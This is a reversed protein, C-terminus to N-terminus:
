KRQGKRINVLQDPPIMGRRILLREAHRYLKFIKRNVFREFPTKGWRAAKRLEEEEAYRRKEEETRPDDVEAHAGLYRCVPSFDFVYSLLGNEYTRYDLSVVTVRDTVVQVSMEKRADDQRFCLLDIEVGPFREALIRQAEVADEDSPGTMIPTEAYVALVRKSGAVAHLFRDVRRAYKEAVAPFAEDVTRELPFDHAYVLGTRRNRMVWNYHAARRIYVLELDGREFWGAFNAAVLRARTLLDSSGAWDLPWSTFQLNMARICQSCGCVAGLSFVLDYKMKM